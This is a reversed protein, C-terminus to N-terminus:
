RRRGRRAPQSAQIFRRALQDRSYEPACRACFTARDDAFDRLGIEYTQDRVVDRRFLPHMHEVVANRAYVFVGRARALVSLEVDVFNHNYGEHYIIGPGDLSGGPDEMYSRRVISHTALLGAKVFYNARDNTAVVHYRDGAIRLAEEAWGPHFKIDDAGLFLFPSKTKRFGLNIKKAYQGQAPPGTFSLSKAGAAKVAKIEEIDGKSVLFFVNLPVATSASLNELLPQVRHPRGLVPILVDIM